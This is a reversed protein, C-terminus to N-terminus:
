HVADSNVLWFTGFYKGYTRLSFSIVKKGLVDQGSMNKHVKDM